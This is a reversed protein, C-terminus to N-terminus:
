TGLDFNDSYEKFVLGSLLIASIIEIKKSYNNQFKINKKLHNIQM